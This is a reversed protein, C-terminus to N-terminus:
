RAPFCVEADGGPPSVYSLVSSLCTDTPNECVSLGADDVTCPTTCRFELIWRATSATCPDMSTDSNLDFPCSHEGRRVACVTGAECARLVGTETWPGHLLNPASEVSCIEGLSAVGADLGSDVVSDGADPMPEVPCDELTCGHVLLVFMVLCITKM